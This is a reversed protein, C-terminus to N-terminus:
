TRQDSEGDKGYRDSKQVLFWYVLLDREQKDHDKFLREVISWFRENHRRELSHALEHFIVYEILREPLYKLFTNVTLNGRSSYSGWKTKMKRYYIDRIKFNFEKGFTEVISSVLDRLEEDTRKLNLVKRETEELAQKIVEEKRIIWRQHKELLDAENEYDKPLILLLSGTKYELRPYKVDRYDVEYKIGTLSRNAKEPM